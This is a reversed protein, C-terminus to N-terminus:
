IGATLQQDFKVVLVKNADINPNFEYIQSTTITLDTGTSLDICNEVAINAQDLLLCEKKVVNTTFSSFGIM